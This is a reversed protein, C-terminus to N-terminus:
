EVDTMPNITEISGDERFTLPTMKVNRLHTLGSLQTDHYFLWWQGDIETISHHTTWGEVPELIRGRYTFPGYPSDGTAYVLYHTEGTSYTLYYTDGRRFVWAGEFFRRDLDGAVLPDGNEDLIRVPRLPEAFQLMDPAMRAVMPAIAPDGPPTPDNEAGDADYTGDQWRQLQGGWIGGLYMYHEGDRDRLIGPDISYSGAIPEAQPTFPGTPSQSTAVGIRFIGEADKAPFYLYYTGNRFAADPAWMQREAWPVQAVDLAPSHVTVPGGPRDMSLVQYDRMDFADATGYLEQPVEEDHSAYIYIRGDDWVRASPDATYIEDTLPQAIYRPDGDQM